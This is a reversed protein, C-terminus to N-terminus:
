RFSFRSFRSFRSFASFLPRNSAMRGRHGLSWSHTSGSNLLSITTYPSCLAQISRTLGSFGPRETQTCSTHSEAQTRYLAYFFLDHAKSHIVILSKVSVEPALFAAPCPLWGDGQGKWLQRGRQGKSSPIMRILLNVVVRCSNVCSSMLLCRLCFIHSKKEVHAM